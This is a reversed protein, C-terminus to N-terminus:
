AIRSMSQSSLASDSSVIKTVVRLRFEVRSLRLIPLYAGGSCKALTNKMHFM